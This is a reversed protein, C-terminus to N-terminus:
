WCTVRTPLLLWDHELKEDKDKPPLFCEANKHGKIEPGKRFFTLADFFENQFTSM